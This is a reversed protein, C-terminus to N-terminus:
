QARVQAIYALPVNSPSKVDVAIVAHIKGNISLEDNQIIEVDGNSVVQKDGGLILDNDILKKDFNKIIADVLLIPTIVETGPNIPTGPTTTKKNLYIANSGNGTKVNAKLLGAKVKSSIDLGAM